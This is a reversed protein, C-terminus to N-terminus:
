MKLCTQDPHDKIPPEIQIGLSRAREKLITKVVHTETCDMASALLSLIRRDNDTVRM